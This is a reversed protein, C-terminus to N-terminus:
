KKKTKRGLNKNQAQIFINIQKFINKDRKKKEKKIIKKKIKFKM